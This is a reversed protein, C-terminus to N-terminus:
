GIAGTTQEAGRHSHVFLGATPTLRRLRERRAPRTHRPPPPPLPARRGRGAGGRGAGVKYTTGTRWHPTDNCRYAVPDRLTKNAAQMDMKFRLCTARGAESGAVMERWAALNEDVSRNRRRSEVGKMREDRMADVPTDDAYLSGAKILREALDLMQPFYDSTYTLADHAVGMTKLDAIISDTFETSEKEPNTDDFRLIMKGKYHRAFYDNLLAAKAHGIHLYGSPEPPFRTVVAGQEAGPLGVDFSGVFTSGGTAAAKAAAAENASLFLLDHEAALAAAGPTSGVHAHWRAAHPAGKKAKNWQGLAQLAGWLTYDAMTPADGVLYTRLSCYDDLGPLAAALAPGM